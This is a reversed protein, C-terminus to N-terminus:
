FFLWFWAVNSNFGGFNNKCIVYLEVNIWFILIGRGKDWVMAELWELAKVKVSNM